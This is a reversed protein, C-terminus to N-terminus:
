NVRLCQGVFILNPNSIGNLRVLAFVTTGFRAAISTLTEGRQVIHTCSTPCMTPCATPCVTPTAMPCVTPTATPCVTPCVTPCLTPCVTPCVQPCSSTCTAPIILRQGVFILNPNSIGNVQAIASVTTCFRRALSSLTDGRQVIHVCIDEGASVPLTLGLQVLLVITLIVLVRRGIAKRSHLM